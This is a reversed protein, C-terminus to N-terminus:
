RRETQSDALAAPDQSPRSLVLDGRTIARVLAAASPRPKLDPDFGSVALCDFQAALERMRLLHERSVRINSRTRPVVPRSALPESM